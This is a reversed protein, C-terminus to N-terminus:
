LLNSLMEWIWEIVSGAKDKIWEKVRQLVTDLAKIIIESLQPLHETVWREAGKVIAKILSESWGKDFTAPDKDLMNDVSRGLGTRAWANTDSIGPNTEKIHEFLIVDDQEM